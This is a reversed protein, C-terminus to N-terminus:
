YHLYGRHWPLFFWTGHQCQNWFTNQESPSPLTEGPVQMPTKVVDFEHRAAQYRWSTPDTMPRAQMVAIARAYLELTQDGPALKWADRRTRPM